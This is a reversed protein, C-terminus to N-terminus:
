RRAKVPKYVTKGLPSVLHGANSFNESHGAVYLGDIPMLDIMRTLIEIQTKKDFYIMVNRCFLVDVPADINWQRHTLNIQQFVVMNRLEPVVKVKGENRGVGRHFFTKRQDNTLDKIGNVSYIGDSAQQLVTSDIDSAIIEVPTNFSNYADAVTMAISYPEEGTSSAACWIRLKGPHAHLYQQLIPFHHQERFFSTLNTTLSNIFLQEESDNKKLYLLYDTFSNIKLARLRRALRSYVMSDKSDALHIGAKEYLIKRVKNFDQQSFRFEKGSALQEM